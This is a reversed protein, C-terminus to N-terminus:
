YATKSALLAELVQKAIQDMKWGLIKGRKDVSYRALSGGFLAFDREAQSPPKPGEQDATLLGGYKIEADSPGIQEGM